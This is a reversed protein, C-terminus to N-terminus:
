RLKEELINLEKDYGRIIILYRGNTLAKLYNTAREQDIGLGRLIGYPGMSMSGLKTGNIEQLFMPMFAGLIFITGIEPNSITGFDLSPKFLEEFQAKLEDESYKLTKENNNKNPALQGLVSIQLNKADIPQLIKITKEVEKFEAFAKLLIRKQKDISFEPNTM